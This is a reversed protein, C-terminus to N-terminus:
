RNYVYLRIYSSEERIQMKENVKWGFYDEGDIEIKYSKLILNKYYKPVIIEKAKSSHIGPMKWEIQTSVLDVVLAKVGVPQSLVYEKEGEYPDVVVEKAMYIKITKAKERFLKSLVSVARDLQELEQLKCM